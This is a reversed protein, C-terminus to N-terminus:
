AAVQRTRPAHQDFHATLGLSYRSKCVTTTHVGILEAIQPDTLGQEWLDRVKDRTPRTDRGALAKTREAASSFLVGGWIHWQEGTEVAYELCDRQFPCGGCARRARAHVSKDESTFIGPEVKGPACGRAPDSMWGPGAPVDLPIRALTRDARIFGRRASM